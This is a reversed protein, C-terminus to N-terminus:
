ARSSYAALSSRDARNPSTAAGATVCPTPSAVVGGGYQGPSLGEQQGGM